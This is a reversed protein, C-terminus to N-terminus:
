IKFSLSILKFGGPEMGKYLFFSVWLCTSTVHSTLTLGFNSYLVGLWQFKPREGASRQMMSTMIVGRLTTNPEDPFLPGQINGPVWTPSSTSNMTQPAGVSRHAQLPKEPTPCLHAVRVAAMMQSTAPSDRPTIKSAWCLSSVHQPLFRGPRHKMWTVAPVSWLMESSSQIVAMGERKLASSVSAWFPWTTKGCMMSPSWSQHAVPM